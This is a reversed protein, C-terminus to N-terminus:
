SGFYEWHWSESPVTNKWGMTPGHEFMWSKAAPDVMDIDLAQGHQHNSYGPVAAVPGHGSLYRQRLAEQEDMTRFGSNLQLSVGDAAAAAKLDLWAQATKAGVKVGDLEVVDVTGLHQGGDYADYHGLYEGPLEGVPLSSASGSFLAGLTAPGVVGDATLGNAAQLARVLAETGQGFVGDLDLDAGLDSMREQLTKVADGRSGRKLAGGAALEEGRRVLEAEMAELARTNSEHRWLARDGEDRSTQPVSETLVRDVRSIRRSRQPM